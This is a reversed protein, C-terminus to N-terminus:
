LLALVSWNLYAAFTVWAIYPVLLWAAHKSIKRFTNITVLIAFWLAVIGILGYLPSRLGFFLVSWLANLALQIGFAYLAPRTKKNIGKQWVLYLSIGMLTYLVLWVAGIVTGSPAFAPKNLAAYWAPIAPMTFLSGIIGALQCVVISFLLRKPDKPM